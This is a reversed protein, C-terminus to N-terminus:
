RANRARLTHVISQDHRNEPRQKLAEAAESLRFRVYKGVRLHQIEGRRAADLWWSAPVVTAKEMAEADLWQEAQAAQPAAQAPLLERAREVGRAFEEQTLAVAVNGVAVIVLNESM